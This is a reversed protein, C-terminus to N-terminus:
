DYNKYEENALAEDIPTDQHPFVEDLVESVTPHENVETLMNISEM